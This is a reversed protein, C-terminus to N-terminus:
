AKFFEVSKSLVEKRQDVTFEISDKLFQYDILQDTYEGGKM